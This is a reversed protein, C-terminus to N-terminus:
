QADIHRLTRLPFVRSECLIKIAMMALVKGFANLDSKPDPSARQFGRREHNQCMGM